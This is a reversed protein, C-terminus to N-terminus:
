RVDVVLTVFRSRWAQADDAPPELVTARLLWQGPFPPPVQLLGQPDSQRWVGLTHRESVLEVWQGALPRGDM